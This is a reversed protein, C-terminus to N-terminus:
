PRTGLLFRLAHIDDAQDPLLYRLTLFGDGSSVRSRTCKSGASSASTTRLGAGSATIKVRKTGYRPPHCRDEACITRTRVRPALAAMGAM